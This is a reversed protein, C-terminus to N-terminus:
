GGHVADVRDAKSQLMAIFQASTEQFRRLDNVTQELEDAFAGYAPDRWSEGLRSFQAQLNSMESGLSSNFRGLHSAFNRLEGSEIIVQGNSM